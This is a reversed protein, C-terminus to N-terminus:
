HEYLRDGRSKALAFAENIEETEFEYKILKERLKKESYDRNALSAILRKYAKEMSM